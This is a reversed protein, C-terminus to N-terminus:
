YCSGAHPQAGHKARRQDLSARPRPIVAAPVVLQGRRSSFTATMTVIDYFRKMACLAARFLVCRELGHRTTSPRKCAVRYAGITPARSDHAAIKSVSRIRPARSRQNRNDAAADDEPQVAANLSRQRRPWDHNLQHSRHAPETTCGCRKWFRQARSVHGWSRLM